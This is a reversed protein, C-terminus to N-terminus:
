YHPLRRFPSAPPLLTLASVSAWRSASPQAGSCAQWLRPQRSCATPPASTFTVAFVVSLGALSSIMVTRDSFHSAAARSLPAGALYGLGLAAFLLGLTGAGAVLVTGTYPVLLATLAANGLLFLATAFVAPLGPATRPHTAGARLDNTFRGLVTGAREQPAAPDPRHLIATILLASALYSAADLTM